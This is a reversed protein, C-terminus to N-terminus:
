EEEWIISPNKHLLEEAELQLYHKYEESSVSQDELNMTHNVRKQKNQIHEQAQKQVTAELSDKPVFGYVFVTNTAEAVKRLTKLTLNGRLEEKEIAAARQQSVSLRNGLQRTSMSLAARLAQIWGSKPINIQLLPRFRDLTMDLQSRILKAKNKM